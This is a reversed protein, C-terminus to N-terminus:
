QLLLLLTLMRLMLLMLLQLLLLMLLMLLLIMLMLLALSETGDRPLLVLQLKPIAAVTPSELVLLFRVHEVRIQLRVFIEPLMVEQRAVDARLACLLFLLLLLSLLDLQDLLDLLLALLDLFILM